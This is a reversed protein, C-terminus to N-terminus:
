LAFNKQKYIKITFKRIYPSILHSPPDGALGEGRVKLLIKLCLKSQRFLATQEPEERKLIKILGDVIGQKALPVAIDSGKSALQEIAWFISTM